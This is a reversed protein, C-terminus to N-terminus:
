ASAAENRLACPLYLKGHAKSWQADRSLKPTLGGHLAAPSDRNADVLSQESRAAEAIAATAITHPATKSSMKASRTPLAAIPVSTAENCTTQISRSLAGSLSRSGGTADPTD